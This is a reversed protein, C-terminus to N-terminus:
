LLRRSAGSGGTRHLRVEQQGAHVWRDGDMVLHSQYSARCRASGDGELDVQHGAVLHQTAEFRTVNRRLLDAFEEGTLSREGSESTLVVEAAVCSRGM